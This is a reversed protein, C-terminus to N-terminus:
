VHCSKKKFMLKREDGIYYYTQETRRGHTKQKKEM